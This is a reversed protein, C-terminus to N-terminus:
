TEATAAAAGLAVLVIWPEAVKPYFVLYDFLQHVALAMTAAFAALTWPSRGLARSLTRLMAGILFLTASFLVIGGEALAQLYLNNAHTRIGYVGAEPLRLEFNGAGIGFIPHHRFFYWAARWLETRNGVGGPGTPTSPNRLAPVVKAAEIWAGDALIGALAGAILPAIARLATGVGAHWAVVVIVVAFGLVGSRSFTLLLTLATTIGLLASVGSPRALRWALIVGAAVELYGALQNPGELVGAIRPVVGRGVAFDSPAGIVEQALASICVLAIALYFSRRVIADHPDSRFAAFAICFWLGYETWKFFESLTEGRWTAGLASAAIAALVAAFAFLIFRADRLTLFARPRALMGVLTGALVVKPLTVSTVWLQNYLAFPTVFALAAVGLSARRMTAIACALFVACFVLLAAPDLAPYIVFREVVPQYQV